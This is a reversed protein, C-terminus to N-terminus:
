EDSDEGKIVMSSILPKSEGNSGIKIDGLKCNNISTYIADPNECKERYVVKGKEDIKSECVMNFGKPCRSQKCAKSHWKYYYIVPNEVCIEQYANSKSGFISITQKKWAYHSYKGVPELTSCKEIAPQTSYYTPIGFAKQCVVEERIDVCFGNSCQQNDFCKEQSVNTDVYSCVANYQGPNICSYNRYTKYVGNGICFADGVYGDTGCDSEASCAPTLCSANYCVDGSDCAQKLQPAISVSCYSNAKGPNNCNYSTYNQWIENGNCYAEGTWSNNGCHSNLSCVACVGSDCGYSCDAIKEEQYDPNSYCSNLACGKEYCTRNKYSSNGICYKNWEDCYDAGCEEKKKAFKLASCKAFLTGSYACDFSEYDQYLDNKYCYTEGM